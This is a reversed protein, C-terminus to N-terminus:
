CLRVISPLPNVRESFIRSCSTMPLSRARSQPTRNHLCPSAEDGTIVKVNQRTGFCTVVSDGAQTLRERPRGCGVKRNHQLFTCCTRSLFHHTINSVLVRLSLLLDPMNHSETCAHISLLHRTKQRPYNM